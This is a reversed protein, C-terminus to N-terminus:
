GVLPLVLTVGCLGWTKPVLSAGSLLLCAPGIFRLAKAIPAPNPASLGKARAKRDAKRISRQRKKSASSLRDSAQEGEGYIPAIFVELLGLLCYAGDELRTTVRGAAWAKKEEVNYKTINDRYSELVEAPIKTIKAIKTNLSAGFGDCALNCAEFPCKHGLVEWMSTFFVVVQPALLEQLTWGRQFWESTMFDHMAHEYKDLSGVDALLAYCAEANAYWQFM